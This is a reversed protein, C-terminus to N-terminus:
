DTVYTPIAERDNLKHKLTSEYDDAVYKRDSARCYESFIVLGRGDYEFLTDSLIWVKRGDVDEPHILYSEVPPTGKLIRLEIVDDGTFSNERRYLAFGKEGLSDYWIVRPLLIVRSPAFESDGTIERYAGCPFAKGSVLVYAGLVLIVIVLIIVIVM